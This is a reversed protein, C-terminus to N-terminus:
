QKAEVIQLKLTVFRYEDGVENSLEVKFSNKLKIPSVKLDVAKSVAVARVTALETNTRIFGGKRVNVNVSKGNVLVSENISGIENSYPIPRIIQSRDAGGTYVASIIMDFGSNKIESDFRKVIRKVTDIFVTTGPDLNGSTPDLLFEGKGYLIPKVNYVKLDLLLSEDTVVSKIGIRPAEVSAGGFPTSGLRQFYEKSYERFGSSSYKGNGVEVEHSAGGLLRAMLRTKSLEKASQYSKYDTDTSTSTCGALGIGIFVLTVLKKM